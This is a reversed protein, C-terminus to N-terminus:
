DAPSPPRCLQAYSLMFMDYGFSAALAVLFVALSFFSDSAGLFARIVIGDLVLLAILASAAAINSDKSMAMKLFPFAIIPFAVVCLVLLCVRTTLSFRGGEPPPLSPKAESAAEADGAVVLPIDVVDGKVIRVFKLLGKLVASNNTTEFQDLNGIIVADLGNKEVDYVSPNRFNLLNRVKELPPTGDLDLWGGEMLRRRLTLTVFDTPDNALHLVAARRVDGQEARIRTVAHEVASRAVHQRASDCSPKEPGLWWWLGLICLALVVPVVVRRMLEFGAGFSFGHFLGGFRM